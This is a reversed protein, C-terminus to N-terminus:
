EKEEEEYHIDTKDERIAGNCKTCGCLRNVLMLDKNAYWIRNDLVCDRCGEGPNETTGDRVVKLRAGGFDVVDGPLPEICSKLNIDFKYVAM